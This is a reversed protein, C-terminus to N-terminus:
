PNKREFAGTDCGTLPRPRGRQDRKPCTAALGVAQSGELLAITKTPGGNRALGGILPDSTVTGFISCSDGALNALLNAGGGAGFTGFCQPSSGGAGVTNAALISDAFEFSSTGLQAIGGGSGGSGQLNATNGAVTSNDLRVTAGNLTTIAGGTNSASNGSLTSNVVDMVPEDEASGPINQGDAAIAGGVGAANGSFTSSKITGETASFGAPFFAGGGYSATNARFTTASVTLKTRVSALGGGRGAANHAIALHKLKTQSFGTLIAGGDEGPASGHSVTMRGLSDHPLGIRARAGIDFVRAIEAGSVETAKVGRGRIAAPGTVDLDGSKTPADSAEPIELEYTGGGLLIRSKGPSKNAALVAERLSCDEPKCKGPTPDDFRTPELTEAGAPAPALLTAAAVSVLATALGRGSM